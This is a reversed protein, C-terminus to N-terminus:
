QTLERLEQTPAHAAGPPRAVPQPYCEGGALVLSVAALGGALALWERFILAAPLYLMGATMALQAGAAIGFQPDGQLAPVARHM